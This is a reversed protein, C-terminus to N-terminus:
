RPSWVCGLAEPIPAETFFCAKRSGLWHALCPGKQGRVAVDVTGGCELLDSCLFSIPGGFGLKSGAQACGVCLCMRSATPSLLPEPLLLLWVQAKFMRNRLLREPVGSLSFHSGVSHPFVGTGLAFLLSHPSNVRVRVRVRVYM